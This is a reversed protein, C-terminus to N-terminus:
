NCNRTELDFLRELTKSCPCCTGWIQDDNSRKLVGGVDLLMKQIEGGWVVVVVVVMKANLSKHIESRM